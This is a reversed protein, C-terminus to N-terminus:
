GDQSATKRGLAEQRVFELAGDRLAELDQPGSFTSEIIYRALLHRATYPHVECTSEDLRGLAAAFADAARHLDDPTLVHRKM